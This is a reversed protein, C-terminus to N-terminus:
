DEDDPTERLQDARSFRGAGAVGGESKKVRPRAFVRYVPYSWGDNLHAHESKRHPVGSKNAWLKMARATRPCEPTVFLHRKGDKTKLRAVGAKVRELIDPNADSDKQPKYLNKWGAAKLTIDSTKGKNHAGDQWWGSADIVSGCEDPKYGVGAQYGEPTWRDAHELGDALDAENAKDLVVETVIWCLLDCKTIDDVDDARRFFKLVVAVMAPSAQFDMGVMWPFARGLHLKTVEPTVDVLGPLVACKTQREDYTYFVVDGIPKLLGLVDRDYSDPDLEAALSRLAAMDIFPNEEPNFDFQVADVGGPVGANGKAVQEVMSEVWRGIPLEPPNAAIMVLGGTDAIPARIQRYGAQSMNQGENYLVLDVRGRRLGTPKHGSLLLIKAGHPLTFTTVKGAGAGRFTYWAAPLMSKIAAELEATEDITPSIAWVFASPTMVAFLVLAACALHSKGCRRGGIFLASWVARVLQETGADWRLMGAEEWGGTVYATFWKALWRAAREQGSGRFVRVVVIGGLDETPTDTWKREVRDWRGGVTLITEEDDTSWKAKRPGRGEVRSVRLSMALDVFREGAIAGSAEALLQAFRRSSM